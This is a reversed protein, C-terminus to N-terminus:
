EDEEDPEDEPEEDPEPPVGSAAVSPMAGAGSPPAPRKALQLRAPPHTASQEGGALSGM